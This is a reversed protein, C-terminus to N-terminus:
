SGDDLDERACEPCYTAVQDDVTLYARWGKESDRDTRGCEVCRLSGGRDLCHERRAEQFKEYNRHLRAWASQDQSPM